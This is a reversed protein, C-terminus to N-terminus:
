RTHPSMMDSRALLTYSIRHRESALIRLGHLRLKERLEEEDFFGFRILRELLYAFGPTHSPRITTQISLHGGGDLVRGIEKLAPDPRDFLHLAGCCNVFSFAGSVFPLKFVTGRIFIINPLSEQAALAQARRLMPLSLDFGVVLGHSRQALPRTFVGPGCALDLIRSHDAQGVVRLVTRVEESFSRSSALYYGLPRWLREYISVVLPTQMLRQFPTIVEAADDGLMDLIGDRLLFDVGCTGCSVGNPHARLRTGACHSCRMYSILSQIM